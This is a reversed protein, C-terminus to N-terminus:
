EDDGSVTVHLFEIKECSVKYKDVRSLRTAVFQEDEMDIGHAKRLHYFFEDTNDIDLDCTLCHFTSKM